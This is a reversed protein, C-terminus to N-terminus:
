YKPLKEGRLTEEIYKEPNFEIRWINRLFTKAIYANGLQNPHWFDLDGKKMNDEPIDMETIFTYIKESPFNESEKYMDIFGNIGMKRDEEVYPLYINSSITNWPNNDTSFIIEIEKEAAMSIIRQINNKHEDISVNLVGDNGGIMLVILDPRISLIDDMKALIDKTTSGDYGFNFCRLGWDGNVKDNLVYGVIERWNPHVWETSTISDGVFVIWYKGKEALAKKIKEM